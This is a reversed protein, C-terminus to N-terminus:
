RGLIINEGNEHLVRFGLGYLRETILVGMGDHEIVLLRLKDFIEWPILNFLEFNTKEVDISIFSYDVGYKRIMTDVSIMSLVMETYEVGSKKWMKAWSEETTSVADNTVWFKVDGDVKGIAYPELVARKLVPEGSYTTHVRFNKELANFVGPSPEFFVGVWEKLMLEFSNSFTKGDYAGIDLLRTVTNPNRLSGDPNYFHNIIFTQEENQSYKM